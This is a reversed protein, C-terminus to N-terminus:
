QGIIIKQNMSEPKVNNENNENSEEAGFIQESTRKENLNPHPTIQPREEGDIEMGSDKSGAGFKMNKLKNEHSNLLSEHSNANKLNPVLNQKEYEEEPNYDEPFNDFDSDKVDFQENTNNKNNENDKKEKDEDKEKKNEDKEEFVEDKLFLDHILGQEEANYEFLDEKNNAMSTKNNNEEKKNENLDKNTNSNINNEPKPNEFEKKENMISAKGLIQAQEDYIVDWNLEGKYIRRVRSMYSKTPAQKGLSILKNTFYEFDYNPFLMFHWNRTLNILKDLNKTNDKSNFETNTIVEYYKRLGNETNYLLTKADLKLREQKKKEEKVEEENGEKVSKEEEGAKEKEEGDNMEIDKEENEIEKLIDKAVNIKKPRRPGAIERIKITQKNLQQRNYIQRKPQNKQKM